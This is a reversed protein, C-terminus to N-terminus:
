AIPQPLLGAITRQDRALEEGGPVFSSPGKPLELSRRWHSNPGLCGFIGTVKSCRIPGCQM